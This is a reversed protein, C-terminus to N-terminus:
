PWSSSSARALWILSHLRAEFFTHGIDQFAIRVKLHLALTVLQIVAQEEFVM